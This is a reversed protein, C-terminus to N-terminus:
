NFTGTFEIPKKFYQCSNRVVSQPAEGAFQRFERIFHAQDAYGLDYTIDSWESKSNLWTLANRFRIIRVYSKPSTGMNEKFSRQLQRMGVSVTNSVEEVTINGKAQRILNAAEVIYNRSREMITLRNALYVETQAIIDEINERGYIGQQFCEMATGMFAGLESYACYLSAAPVDFLRYFTEPKLRIGFLRGSGPMKWIVPNDYIGVFFSRPLQVWEGDTLIAGVNDDLFFLIEYMGIPLCKQIPPEEHEGAEFSHLWYCEVFPSLGPSPEFENYNIKM